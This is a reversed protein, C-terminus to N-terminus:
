SGTPDGADRWLGLFKLVAEPGNKQAEKWGRHQEKVIEEDTAKHCRSEILTANGTKVAQLASQANLAGSVLYLDLREVDNERLREDAYAAANSHLEFWKFPNLEDSGVSHVVFTDYTEM